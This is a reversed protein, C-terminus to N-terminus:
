KKLIGEIKEKFLEPTFPKVIYGALLPHSKRAAQIKDETGEATVMICPIRAVAPVKAVGALFEVGSMNPMSWDCLILAIDQYNLGLKQIADKGDVAELFEHEFGAKRIIMMIMKRQVASDDVVLIKM